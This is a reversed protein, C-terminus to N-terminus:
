YHGLQSGRWRRGRADSDKNKLFDQSSKMDIIFDLRSNPIPGCPEMYLIQPIDASIVNAAPFM